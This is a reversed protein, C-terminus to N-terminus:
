IRKKNTVNYFNCTKVNFISRTADIKFLAHVCACMCMFAHMYACTGCGSVVGSVVGGEGEGEGAVWSGGGGM